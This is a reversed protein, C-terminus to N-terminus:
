RAVARPAPQVFECNGGKHLGDVVHLVRVLRAHRALRPRLPLVCFPEVRSKVSEGRLVLAGVLRRESLASKASSYGTM